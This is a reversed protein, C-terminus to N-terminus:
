SSKKIKARRVQQLKVYAKYVDLNNDQYMGLMDKILPLFFFVITAIAIGLILM